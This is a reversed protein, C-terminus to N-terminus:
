FTTGMVATSSTAATVVAYATTGRAPPVLDAGDRGYARDNGAFARIEDAADTGRLVDDGPTGVIVAASAVAALALASILAAPGLARIRM